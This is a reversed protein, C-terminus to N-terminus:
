RTIKGSRSGDGSGPNTVYAYRQHFPMGPWASTLSTLVAYGGGRSLVSQPSLAVQVVVLNGQTVQLGISQRACGNCGASSSADLALPNGSVASRSQVPLYFVLILGLAM